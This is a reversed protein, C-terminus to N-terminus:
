GRLDAIIGSFHIEARIKSLEFAVAMLANHVTVLTDGPSPQDDSKVALGAYPNYQEFREQPSQGKSETAMQPERRHHTSAGFIPM